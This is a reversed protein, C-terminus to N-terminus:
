DRDSRVNTSCNADRRRMLAVALATIGFGIMLVFSSPEPVTTNVIFLGGDMDSLLVRDAGLFPYVGWNGDFGSVAGPFTDYSGILVPNDPDDISLVQLGAQYWSIYLRDDDLILNHPSFADIGLSAATIASRLMPFAPNSIDYIRVDGNSIERASVLLNGDDSAWNSSLCPCPRPRIETQVAPPM